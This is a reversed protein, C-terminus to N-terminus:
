LTLNQDPEVRSSARGQECVLRAFIGIGHALILLVFVYIGALPGIDFDFLLFYTMVSYSAGFFVTRWWRKEVVCLAGPLVIILFATLPNVRM